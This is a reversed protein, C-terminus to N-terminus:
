MEVLKAERIINMETLAYGVMGTKETSVMGEVRACQWKGLVETKRTIDSEGTLNSGVVLGKVEIDVNAM